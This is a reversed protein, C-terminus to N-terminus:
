VIPLIGVYYYSDGRVGSVTFSNAQLKSLLDPLCELLGKLVIATSSGRDVITPM